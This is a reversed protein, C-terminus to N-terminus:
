PDLAEVCFSFVASDLPPGGDSGLNRASMEINWVGTIFLYVPEATYTTTAADFTVVVAVPDRQRGMRPLVSLDVEVPGTADRVAVVFANSGRRPPAPRSEVLEFFLMGNRGAKTTRPLYKEADPALAACGFPMEDAPAPPGDAVGSDDNAGPEASPYRGGCASVLVSTTLGM